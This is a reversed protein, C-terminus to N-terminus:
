EMEYSGMMAAVCKGIIMITSPMGFGRRRYGREGRNSDYNLM